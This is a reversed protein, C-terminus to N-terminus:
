NGVTRALVIFGGEAKHLFGEAAAARRKEGCLAVVVAGLSLAVAEGFRFKRSQCRLCRRPSDSALRIRVIIVEVQGGLFRADNTQIGAGDHCPLAIQSLVEGCPRVRYQIVPQEVLHEGVIHLVAPLKNQVGVRREVRFPAKTHRLLVFAAVPVVRVRLFRQVGGQAVGLSKQYVDVAQQLSDVCAAIKGCGHGGGIVLQGIILVM